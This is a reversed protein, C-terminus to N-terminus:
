CRKLRSLRMKEKPTLKKGSDAPPMRESEDDSSIRAILASQEPKGPVIAVDGSDAPTIAGAQTDLRLSAQREAEDPGHCTFCKNSLISRIDRNFDIPKVALDDAFTADSFLTGVITLLLGLKM